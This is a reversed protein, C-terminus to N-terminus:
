KTQSSVAQVATPVVKVITYYAPLGDWGFVTPLINESFLGVSDDFSLPIAPLDRLLTSQAAALAAAPTLQGAPTGAGPAGGATGSAAGSPVPVPPVSTEGSEAPQPSSNSETSSPEAGEAVAPPLPQVGPLASLAAALAADFEASQYDGDNAGQGQAASSAFQPQLYALPSPYGPTWRTVLAADVLRDAINQQMQAQTEFALERVPIGLVAQVDAVVQKAWALTMPDDAAYAVKLEGGWPRLAEAQRWLAVAQAPDRRLVENGPQSPTYTALSYSTFDTAPTCTQGMVQRCFAERDLSRSVAARRLRGEADSGFGLLSQPILLQSITKGSAKLARPQGGAVATSVSPSGGVLVDLNNSTVDSLALDADAYFVFTLGGNRPVRSGEYATNRVLQLQRDHQWADVSKMMYPGNGIPSEGFAVMDQYAVKPLPFFARFGLMLPFSPVPRTLVVAFTLEDVLVLGSMSDATPNGTPPAVASYGEILSFYAANAQANTKVAGFNWANVFSEATVATDDTFTQGERIRITWVQNDASTISEAVEYRLVGDAAYTVLGAFLQDVVRGGSSEDADTPLLSTPPESSNTSIIGDSNAVFSNATLPAFPMDPGPAPTCAGLALTAGGALGAFLTRRGFEPPSM